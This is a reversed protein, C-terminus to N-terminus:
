LYPALVKHTEDFVGDLAGRRRLEALAETHVAAEDDEKVLFAGEHATGDKSNRLLKGSDPGQVGDGGFRSSFLTYVCRQGVEEDSMGAISVFMPVVYTFLVRRASWTSGWGDQFIGTKVFGPFKHVFTVEPNQEALHELGLTNMTEVAAGFRQVLAWNNKVPNKVHLDDLDLDAHEQGARLISVVRPHCTSVKLLPLLLMAFLMRGWYALVM